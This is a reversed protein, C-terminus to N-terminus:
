IGYVLTIMTLAIVSYTLLIPLGLKVFDSIRYNGASYVMLNTQYGYPSIFSASAAFAVAMVFPMYNDGWQGSVALALPFMIAASANNTVLETFLWTIFFVAILAGLPSLGSLYHGALVALQDALGTSFMAQSLGLAGGIVIFLQLPFRSKIDSVTIIKALVLVVMFIILGKILPVFGMVGLAVIACFGFFVPWEKSRSLPQNVDVGGVVIFDAAIDRRRNFDDGVALVLADGAQLVLQGLGGNLRQDGRRVAVIAANFRSRFDAEKITRGVLSASPSVIVEILNERVSYDFEDMPNLGDFDNLLEIASIDGTFVLVDGECLIEHPNIPTMVQNERIVEILFIKELQRLGNDLVSRGILASAKDIRRELFYDTTVVDPAAAQQSLVKPALLVMVLVCGIFVPLGILTFDFFQLSDYGSQLVFGNVILNTSTGILTLTGGLISAYSLPLLLKAAPIKTQRKLPSLMAAVVATNNIFASFFGSVLSLKVLSYRSSGTLVNRTMYRMLSTRELPLSILFLLILVLLAPNTYGALVAELSLINLLYLAVSSGLFIAWPKIRTFILLTIIVILDLGVLLRSIDISFLDMSIIRRIILKLLTQNHKLQALDSKFSPRIKFM